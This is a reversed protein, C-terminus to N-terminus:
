VPWRVAAEPGKCRGKTEQIGEGCEQTPWDEGKNLYRNLLSNGSLSGMM